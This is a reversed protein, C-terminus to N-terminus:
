GEQRVPPGFGLTRKDDSISAIREYVDLKAQALALDQRLKANESELVMVKEMVISELKAYSDKIAM